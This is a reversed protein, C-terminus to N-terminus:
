FLSNIHLENPQYLFQSDIIIPCVNLLMKTFFDLTEIPKIEKLETNKLYKQLHPFSHLVWM